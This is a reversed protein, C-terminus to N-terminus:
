KNENEPEQKGNPESIKTNELKNNSSAIRMMLKMGKMRKYTIYNKKLIRHAEHPLDKGHILFNKIFERYKNFVANNDKESLPYLDLM